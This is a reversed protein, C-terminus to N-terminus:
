ARAEVGLDERLRNMVAAVSREVEEDTLTRRDSQFRLRFALSRHGDPIGRGEYLDFVQVDVLLAGGEERIVEEVQRARVDRPVVLALDRDVGPFVPPPEYRRVPRPAPEPPLFLELGWVPAAWAPADLAGPHVRGGWGLIRGGPELVTFGEEPVIDTGAPAGEALTTEGLRCRSVLRVLLGKVDWLDVAHTEGQWHLPARSGTIVVCLHTEERPAASAPEALFVTGLEFLRIDRRGRAFNYETRRLLGPLLATRLWAEQVSVPNSLEVGGGGGPAFPMTQAELIGEGVLHDRVEDELQFLPHDPVRGPRFPEVTEPFRDYGYTRAVEELLDVERLVDYSRFGPVAIEMETGSSGAVSFGLPRLLDGVERESLTIGLLQKVRPLRLPVVLGTWPSPCVDLIQPDPSGGGTALIIQVARRVALEMGEPDIGREFRYSAETSMGLANRTSRVSGPRFLACELLLDTTDESVESELGGMVGAIAVPDASDCIALMDRTLRRDMGDLTRILEGDRARRVVIADGGLRALDFAHLPQGLELLVYNTADVVNNIPRSGAARIRSALWAPSPGVRVGRMVAGLYRFCLDRDQIRVSVGGASVGTEGTLLQLEVEPAGPIPQLRLEGDGAAALERALGFHSLLDGRNATIEVDLRWDNLGLAEALPQGPTLDGDLMMLGSGDPGMELEAESCLMGSSELGRILARGIEVGNPLRAGPPAFPYFGGPRVNPAGCVVQFIEGGGDVRCVSLRDAEPHPEVADVRAALLKELGLALPSIGEVPAGRLALTEAVEEPSLTSGPRLAQLWRYSANM